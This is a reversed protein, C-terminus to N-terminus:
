LTTCVVVLKSLDQSMFGSLSMPAEVVIREVAVVGVEDMVVSDVVAEIDMVEVDVVESIDMAVDVDAVLDIFKMSAMM